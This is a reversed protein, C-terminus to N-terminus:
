INFFKKVLNGVTLKPKSANSYEVYITDIFWDIYEESFNTPSSKSKNKYGAEKYEIENTGTHFRHMLDYAAKHTYITLTTYALNLVRMSETSGGVDPHHQKAKRLFAQRIQISNANPEIDLLKYYDTFEDQQMSM